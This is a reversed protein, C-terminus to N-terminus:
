PQKISKKYDNLHETAEELLKDFLLDEIHSAKKTRDSADLWVANVLLYVKSIKPKRLIYRLLGNNYTVEAQPIGNENGTCLSTSYIGMVEDM